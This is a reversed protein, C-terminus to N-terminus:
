KPLRNSEPKRIWEKRYEHRVLSFVVETKRYSWGLERGIADLGVHPEKAIAAHLKEINKITAIRPGTM